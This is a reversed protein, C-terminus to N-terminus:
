DKREQSGPQDVVPVNQNDVVVREREKEGMVEKYRTALTKAALYIFESRRTGTYREHWETHAVQLNTAMLQGVTVSFGTGAHVYDEPTESALAVAVSAPIPTMQTFTELYIEEEPEDLVMMGVDFWHEPYIEVLFNELAIVPM